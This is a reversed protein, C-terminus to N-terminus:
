SAACGHIVAQAWGGRAVAAVPGLATDRRTRFPQMAVRAGSAMALRKAVALSRPSSCAAACSCLPCSSSPRRVIHASTSCGALSTSTPLLSPPPHAPPAVPSPALSHDTQRCVSPNIQQWLQVDLDLLNYVWGRAQACGVGYSARELSCCSYRWSRASSRSVCAPSVPPHRPQAPQHRAPWDTCTATDPFSRDCHSPDTVTALPPGATCRRTAVHGTCPQGSLTLQECTATRSGAAAASRSSSYAEVRRQSVQPSCHRQPHPQVPRGQGDHVAHQKCCVRRLAQAERM